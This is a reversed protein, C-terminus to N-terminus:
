TPETSMKKIDQLRGFGFHPKDNNQSNSIMSQTSNDSFAFPNEPKKNAEHLPDDQFTTTVKRAMSDLKGFTPRSSSSSTNIAIM